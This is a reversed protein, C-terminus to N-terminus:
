VVNITGGVMGMWCSFAFSGREQPTFEIVNLGKRLSVAGDILGRAIVSNTCGSAGTNNIEWRVPVGAQVTFSTPSYGYASAEMSMIQQSAANLAVPTQIPTRSFAALVSSANPLGFVTLQANITYVGFFVVLLGAVQYFRTALNERFALGVTAISVISLSIATGVGFAFMNIAGTWFSNAEIVMLFATITMGCPLLISGAGTLLPGHLKHSSVEKTSFLSLQKPLALKYQQAWQVNLMQLGLLAMVGGVALAIFPSIATITSQISAGVYALTGGAITFAVLRGGYFMGHPLLASFKNDTTKFAENWTKSLSLLVGGVLAACTSAGAVLGFVLFVTWGATESVMVKAAIGSESLMYFLYIIIGTIFLAPRIRLFRDKHFYINGNKFTLFALDSVTQKKQTSLTYGNKKLKENLTEIELLSKKSHTVVVEGNSTSASVKQVGKAKSITKELLVECAACHMGEVYLTSQKHKKKSM